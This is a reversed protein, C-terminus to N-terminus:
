QDNTINEKQVEKPVLCNCWVPYKNKYELKGNETYASTTDCISYIKGTGYCHNCYKKALYEKDEINVDSYRYRYRNPIDKSSITKNEKNM